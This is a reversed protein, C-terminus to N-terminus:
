IVFNVIRDPVIIIKKYEVKKIFPALEESNVVLKETEQKTLGEEVELVM